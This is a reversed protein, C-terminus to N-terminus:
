EGNVWGGGVLLECAQNGKLGKTKEHAGHFKKSVYNGDADWTVVYYGFTFIGSPKILTAYNPTM